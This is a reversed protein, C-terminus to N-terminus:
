ARRAGHGDRGGVAREVLKVRHARRKSGAWRRLPRADGALRLLDVDDGAGRHEPLRAERAQERDTHYNKGPGSFMWCRACDVTKNLPRFIRAPRPRSVARAAGEARATGEDVVFGGRGAARAAAPLEPAHPRAGAPPRRRRRLPRDRERRLRARAATASSSRRARACARASAPDARLLEWDQKGHLNGFLNKLYWEGVHKYCESHHLLPPAFQTWLPNHDDLADAYFAVVEPTVAYSTRQRLAPRRARARGEPERTAEPRSYVGRTSGAVRRM